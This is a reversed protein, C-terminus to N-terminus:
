NIECTGGACALERKMETEDQLEYSVLKSYDVNKFREALEEYREKTIEEYPALMYVHNSRPLFSLGGVIDWNKYVWDAVEIWEDDGVSVTVSPNHETYNEKVVKWHELQKIASVDDKYTSGEPSKVPFELVFTTANEMTQGVEPHYPVGQDKLMKFLSDTASIRIRRIYYESHRPHMGSACNVTQSVTGSPKVATVSTSQEVGFRKAYVKNVRVAEKRLESLVEPDRAADCDWQGTVSVGLLREAECNKKWDESLYKFDTLTSQYTGLIAAVRVKRMLDEKTDGHRAIVESLNCFQSPLLIIEGCQGLLAGNTLALSHSGEVTCCYVKEEVGGSDVSVVKNWRPKLKYAVNRDAFSVLRSFYVKASLTIAGEQSITLRYCDKTGYEGYGDRFDVMGGKRMLRVTSQVGVTKLLEQFDLLWRKHVSCIQYGFGKSSDMATGDADMVGAIFEAKTKETWRFVEDPIAKKADTAWSLLEEKKVSIGRMRKRNYASPVFDVEEKASTRVVGSQVEEASKKLRDACMYKGDYLYLVPAEQGNTGDGVLFGKIYAGTADISGHADPTLAIKLKDGPLLEKADVRTGDELIMSHYPTVKTESGDHLVVKLVEQDEGTVRFNDITRWESGDWIDVNKGVLEEIQYVGSKTTIRTGPAFCPNTGVLSEVVDGDVAAMERWKEIRRAPIQQLLEGRNFIGREGSGGAVLNAWEELFESSSPKETYAVSNNALARHPHNVYFAGNKAEKMEVDDLDSLSIMASRRVGGSVIAEGVKCLIDHVDVNRLRKGQRNLIVDRTFDLLNKLPGPGSAKGGFTKLRAGAPRVRSYDFSVDKGSYWTRMGKVLADAWGERSDPVVYTKLSVGRQRKVVPLQQASETEVSFGVGTGCALLYLVEGFDEIKKPAVWSCNYGAVNCKRIAPGAFQLLRMSPMAEQKLISERVEQYEKESLKDELNEKMFSIYRDVTEVWTERRNEEEIWRAYTRLYVFEGLPNGEFYKSSERALDKIEKAPEVKGRLLANERRFSIFARAEDVLGLEILQRETEDQVSEVDTLFYEEKKEWKLNKEVAKTVRDVEGNVTGRVSVITKSIARRLRETDFDVISGDRKQIRRSNSQEESM